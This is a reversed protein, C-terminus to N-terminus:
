ELIHLYKKRFTKRATTEALVALFRCKPTLRAVRCVAGMVRSKTVRPVKLTVWREAEPEAIGRGEQAPKGSTQVVSAVWASIESVSRLRARDLCSTPCDIAAMFGSCSKRNATLGFYCERCTTSSVRRGMSATARRARQSLVIPLVAGMVSLKVVSGSIAATSEGDCRTLIVAKM